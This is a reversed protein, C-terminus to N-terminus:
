DNEHLKIRQKLIGLYGKMYALQQKDMEQEEKSLQKFKSQASDDNVFKELRNVKGELDEAENKMRKVFQEM